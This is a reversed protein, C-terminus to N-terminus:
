DEPLSMGLTDIAYEKVEKDTPEYSEDIEEELAESKDDSYDEEYLQNSKAPQKGYPNFNKGYM